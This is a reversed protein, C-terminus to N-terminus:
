NMSPVGRAMMVKPGEKKPEMERVLMSLGRIGESVLQPLTLDLPQANGQADVQAAGGAIDVRTQGNHDIIKIHVEIQKM